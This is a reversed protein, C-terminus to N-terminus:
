KYNKMIQSINKRAPLTSLSLIVVALLGNVYKAFIFILLLVFLQYWLEFSLKKSDVLDTIECNNKMKYYIFILIVAYLFTISRRLLLSSMAFAFIYIGNLKFLYGTYKNYLTNNIYDYKKTLEISKEHLNLNSDIINKNQLQVLIFHAITISCLFLKIITESCYTYAAEPLIMVISFLVTFAIFVYSLLTYNKMQSFDIIVSEIGILIAILILMGIVTFLPIAPSIENTLPYEILYEAFLLFYLLLAIFRRFKVLTKTNMEHM